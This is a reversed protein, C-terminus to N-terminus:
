ACLKNLHKRMLEHPMFVKGRKVSVDYFTKKEEKRGLMMHKCNLVIFNYRRLWTGVIFPAHSNYFFFSSQISLQVPNIYHWVWGQCSVWLHHPTWNPLLSWALGCLRSAKIMERRRSFEALLTLLLEQWHTLGFDLWLLMFEASFQVTCM